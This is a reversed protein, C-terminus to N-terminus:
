VIFEVGLLIVFCVVVMGIYYMGLIVLGMVFGVMVNIKINLLCVKIINNIGICVWFLLMVLLVVVVIFLLFIYLDYKLLLM